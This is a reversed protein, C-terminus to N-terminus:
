RDASAVERSLDEVLLREYYDDAAEGAAAMLEALEGARAGLRCGEFRGRLTHRVYGVRAAQRGARAAELWYRETLCIDKPADPRGNSVLSGFVFQAQRYGDDAARRITAMAAKTQGSYFQLRGLQYRSRADSPDAEVAAGCATLAREFDLDQTAVGPAVRDPDAPYSALEACLRSPESSNSGSALLLTLVGAATSSSM